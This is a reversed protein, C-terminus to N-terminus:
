SDTLGGIMALNIAVKKSVCFKANLVQLRGPRANAGRSWAVRLEVPIFHIDAGKTIKYSISFVDHLDPETPTKRTVRRNDARDPWIHNALVM